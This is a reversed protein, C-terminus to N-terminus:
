LHGAAVLYISYILERQEPVKAFTPKLNQRRDGSACGLSVWSVSVIRLMRNVLEFSFDDDM